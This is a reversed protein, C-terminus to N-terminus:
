FEVEVYQVRVFEIRISPKRTDMIWLGYVQGLFIPYQFAREILLVHLNMGNKLRNRLSRWGTDSV